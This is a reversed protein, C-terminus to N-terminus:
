EDWLQNQHSYTAMEINNQGRGERARHENKEELDSTDKSSVRHKSPWYMGLQVLNNGAHTSGAHPILTTGHTEMQLVQELSKECM